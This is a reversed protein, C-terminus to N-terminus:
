TCIGPWAPSAVFIEVIGHRFTTNPLCCGPLTGVTTVPVFPSWSGGDDSSRTVYITSAKGSPPFSVVSAYVNGAADVSPYVYTVAPGVQAPASLTVPNTFSQGRDRPSPSASRPRRATSCRGPPM